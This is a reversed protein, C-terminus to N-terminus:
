RKFLRTFSSIKPNSDQSKQACNKNKCPTFCSTAWSGFDFGDNTLIEIANDAIEETLGINVDTQVFHEKIMAKERYCSQRHLDLDDICVFNKVNIKNRLVWDNHRVYGHNAVEANHSSQVIMGNKKRPTWDANERLWLLIEDTRTEHSNEAPDMSFDQKELLDPTLSIIFDEEKDVGSSVESLASLIARISADIKRM